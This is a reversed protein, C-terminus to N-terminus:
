KTKGSPTQNVPPQSGLRLEHGKVQEQSSAGSKDPSVVQQQDAKQRREPPEPVLALTTIVLPLLMALIITSVQFLTVGRRLWKIKPVIKEAVLYTELVSNKVYALLLEDKGTNL